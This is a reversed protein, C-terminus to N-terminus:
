VSLIQSTGLRRHHCFGTFRPSERSDWRAKAVRLRASPINQPQDFFNSAQLRDSNARKYRCDVPMNWEGRFNAVAQEIAKIDEPLLHCYYKSTEDSELIKNSLGVRTRLKAHGLRDNVLQLNDYSPTYGSGDVLDATAIPAM